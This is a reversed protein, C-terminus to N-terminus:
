QIVGEFAALEPSVPEKPAFRGIEMRRELWLFIENVTMGSCLLLSVVEEVPVMQSDFRVLQTPPPDEICFRVCNSGIPRISYTLKSM